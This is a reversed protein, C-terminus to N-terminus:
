ALSYLVRMLIRSVFELAIFLLVPSFDLGGMNPLIARIPALMPEFVRYLAGMVLAVFQNHSNVVSFSVLLGLVIYVLLGFKIAGFVAGVLWALDYAFGGM